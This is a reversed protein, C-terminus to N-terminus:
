KEIPIFLKTVLFDMDKDQHGNLTTLYISIGLSAGWFGNTM